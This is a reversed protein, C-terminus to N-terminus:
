KDLIANNFEIDKAYFKELVALSDPNMRERSLRKNKTVNSKPLDFSIPESLTDLKMNLYDGDNLRDYDLIVLEPFVKQWAPVWRSMMPLNLLSTYGAHVGYGEKLQKELHEPKKSNTIVGYLESFNIASMLVDVPNRLVYMFKCKYKSTFQVVNDPYLDAERFNLSFDLCPKDSNDLWDYYETISYPRKNKFSDYLPDGPWPSWKDWIYIEKIPYGASSIFPSFRSDNHFCDYLFTTGAKPSGICGILDYDCISM